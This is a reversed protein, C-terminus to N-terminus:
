QNNEVKLKKLGDLFYEPPYPHYPYQGRYWPHNELLTSILDNQGGLFEEFTKLFAPIKLIDERRRKKSSDKPIAIVKLDYSENFINYAMFETKFAHWDHTILLFNKIGRADIIGEKLFVLQGATDLSLPEISIRAYTMQSAYDRMREAVSFNYGFIHGGSMVLENFAGENYLRVAEEVRARTEPGLIGNKDVEHCLVIGLDSKM